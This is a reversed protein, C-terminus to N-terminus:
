RIQGGGVWGKRKSYWDTFRTMPITLALFILGAFVQHVFKFDQSQQNLSTLTVEIVGV